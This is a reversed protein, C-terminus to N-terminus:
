RQLRIIARTRDGHEYPLREAGAPLVRRDRGEMGFVVGGVRVLKAGLDLWELLDFTARSVAADFGNDVAPDVRRAEVVAGAIELERIATSQFAAKKNVPELSRVQLDPLVLALVLGPLGGGSGVDVLSDIGSLYPVLALCDVVQLTVDAPTRAASLNIRENWRVFLDVFRTLQATRPEVGYGRAAARLDDTWHM